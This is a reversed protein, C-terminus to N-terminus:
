GEVEVLTERSIHFARPQFTITISDHSATSFTRSESELPRVLVYSLGLEIVEWWLPVGVVHFHKGIRLEGATM